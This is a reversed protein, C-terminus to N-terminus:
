LNLLSKMYSYNQEEIRSDEPYYIARQNWDNYCKECLLSNLVAVYYGKDCAGNCHDCIGFGGWKICDSLTVKIVKFGKKNKVIQAM